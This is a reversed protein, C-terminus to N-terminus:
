TASEECAYVDLCLAVHLEATEKMLKPVLRAGVNGDGFWGIFYEVCGGGAVVEAFTDTYPLFRKNLQSIYNELSIDTSFLREEEHTQAAWYNYKYAGELPTGKPTARPEGRRWTRSPSLGILGAFEDLVM